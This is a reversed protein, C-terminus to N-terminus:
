DKIYIIGNKIKLNISGSILEGNKKNLLLDVAAFLSDRSLFLGRRDLWQQILYRVQLAPLAPDVLLKDGQEQIFPLNIQHFYSRVSEAEDALFCLNSAIQKGFAKTLMPIMEARMRGRLFRPDSNTPDQFYSVGEIELWRTIKKKSFPILPRLLRMGEMETEEGFAGLRLFPAGEFLRKLVVEARDDAHHGMFLGMAGVKTYIEKLFALRMLRAKEEWNGEGFCELRKSYFPIRLSEVEKKLEDAEASSEERWGHDLHAVYLPGRHVRHLLM